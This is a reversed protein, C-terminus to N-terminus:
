VAAGPKYTLEDSRAAEAGAGDNGADPQDNAASRERMWKAAANVVRVLAETNDARFTAAYASGNEGDKYSRSVTFDFFPGKKGQREWVSVGIAGERFTKAPKNNM